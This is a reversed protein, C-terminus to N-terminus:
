NEGYPIEDEFQNEQMFKHMADLSFDVDTNFEQWRADVTTEEDGRALAKDVRKREALEALRPGLKKIRAAKAKLSLAEKNKHYYEKQKARIEEKNELYVRRNYESQKIKSAVPMVYHKNYLKKDGSKLARKNHWAKACDNTCFKKRNKATIKEGCFKCEM